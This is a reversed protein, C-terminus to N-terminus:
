GKIPFKIIIRKDYLMRGSKSAEQLRYVLYGKAENNLKGIAFHERTVSITTESEHKWEQGTWAGLISDKDDKIDDIREMKGNPSSLEQSNLDYRLSSIPFGAGTVRIMWVNGEAKELRLALPQLEDFERKDWLAIYEDYEAQTLGLKEHYPLPVGPKSKESFEKFWEPDQHAAAEVKALYPEIEAPPVVVGAAGKVFEDVPLYQSFVEPVAHLSGILLLLILFVSSKTTKETTKKKTM